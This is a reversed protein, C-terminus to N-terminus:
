PSAPSVGFRVFLAGGTALAHPLQVTVKDVGAAYFDNLDGIIIGNVGNVAETWTLLDTSYYVSGVYGQPVNSADSRRSEHVFHSANLSYTPRITASDDVTPDGALVFEVANPQDDDDYDFGPLADGGTLGYGAVWVDYPLGVSPNVQAYSVGDYWTRATDGISASATGTQIAYDDVFVEITTNTTRGVYAQYLFLAGTNSITIAPSHDGLEVEKCAMSRLIQMSAPSLGARIRWDSTPDAWFNVWVDYTGAGPTTVTTKLAPADEGNGTESSTLVSGGNGFGTRQHWQNDDAGANADPGTPTMPSGNTLTTNSNTADVYTMTGVTEDREIIGVVAADYIQATSYTGRFWLLATNNADWAPVVPRFNGRVSKETIPTWTFGAGHNTTVGRWIERVSSYPQNTDFVGPQVARPDYRTSIYITNPDNPHLAGLGVYDAEDPYM